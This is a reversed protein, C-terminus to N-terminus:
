ALTNLTNFIAKKAIDKAKDIFGTNKTKNPLPIDVNGGPAEELSGIIKKARKQKKRKKEVKVGTSKDVDKGGRGMFTSLEKAKGVFKYGILKLLATWTNCDHTSKTFIDAAQDASKCYQVTYMRRRKCETLWQLNVAHTRLLHRLAGSRGTEVIRITATNDEYFRLQPDRGLVAQVLDMTPLGETRIAYAYAVIEAEPTSHSVAAQRKAVGTIPFRTDNAVIAHFVGTTSRKTEKCGAFDADGYLDLIWEKSSDGVYGTMRLHTTSAIYCMLRHLEMDCQRDWTTVRQALSTTVKLLDYRAMRAGYLIKMLIRSAIKGLEGPKAEKRINTEDPRVAGLWEAKSMSWGPNYKKYIATADRLEKPYHFWAEPKEVKPFGPTDVTTLCAPIVGGALEIYRNVCNTMFDAMDYEMIRVKKLGQKHADSLNGREDVWGEKTIHNCGLYRGSPEPDGTAIAATTKSATRILKWAKAVDDRQGSMKFDDVYVTLFVKLTKHTFCSPWGPVTRFEQAKLHAENHEEWYGGSDPHGYLAKVLPVVPCGKYKADHWEPRWQSKPLRVWTPVGKLKCQTYAQVADAQETIFDHESLGFADCVKGSCMTPPGSGLEQFLAVDQNEDKVDNGRFVVRGKYKKLGKDWNEKTDPLESGKLVCIEFADGVHMKLRKEKAMAAVDYWCQVGDLDFVDAKYLKDWEDQLAKTAAPISRSQKISVPQAVIANIVNHLRRRLKDRHNSRKGQTTKPMAPAASIAADGKLPGNPSYDDWNQDYSPGDLSGTPM